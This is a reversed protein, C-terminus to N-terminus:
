FASIFILYLDYSKKQKGVKSAESKSELIEYRSPSTTLRKGIFSITTVPKCGLITSPIIKCIWLFTNIKDDEIPSLHSSDALALFFMQNGLGM